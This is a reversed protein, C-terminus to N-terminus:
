RSAGTALLALLDRIEDEVDAPDAITRGIEDSIARGLARKGNVLYSAAQPLDRLGLEEVLASYPIPEAGDIMPRILRAELIRWETERHAAEFSQRVEDIATRLVTAVWHRTFIVEPDDDIRATPEVAAEHQLSDLRGTPRRKRSSAARARDVLYNRLSRSLLGRFRGRDPTAQGPLNRELLIDAIFGQVADNAEDASLGTARAGAFLVPWYRRVLREFSERRTPSDLRGSDLVMSWDTLSAGSHTRSATDHGM